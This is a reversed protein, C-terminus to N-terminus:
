IFVQLNEMNLFNALSQILTGALEINKTFITIDNTTGNYQFTVYSKDRISTLHLKFDEVTDATELDEPM